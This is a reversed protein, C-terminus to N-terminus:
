RQNVTVGKTPPNNELWDEIVEVTLAIDGITEKTEKIVSELGGPSAEQLARAAMVLSRQASKFQDKAAVLYEPRVTVAQNGKMSM